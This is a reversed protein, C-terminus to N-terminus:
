EEIRELEGYHLNMRMAYIVEDPTAIVIEFAPSGNVQRTIRDGEKNVAYGVVLRENAESVEILRTSKDALRVKAYSKM